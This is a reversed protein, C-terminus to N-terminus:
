EAKQTTKLKELEAVAVNVIEGGVAMGGSIQKQIVDKNELMCKGLFKFRENKDKVLKAVEEDSAKDLSTRVYPLVPSVMISDQEQETLVANAVMSGFGATATNLATHMVDHLDKTIAKEAAARQDVKKKKSGCSTLSSLLTACIGACLIFLKFTRM